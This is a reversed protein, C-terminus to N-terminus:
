EISINLDDIKPTDGAYYQVGNIYLNTTKGLTIFLNLNNYSTIVGGKSIYANNKNFVGAKITFYANKVDYLVFNNSFYKKVENNPHSPEDLFEIRWTESLESLDVHLNEINCYLNDYIGVLRKIDASYYSTGFKKLYNQYRQNLEFTDIYMDNINVVMSSKSDNKVTGYCKDINVTIHESNNNNIITTNSITRIEDITQNSDYYIYTSNIEKTPGYDFNFGDWLSQNLIVNSNDIPFLYGVVTITDYTKDILYKNKKLNEYNNYSCDVAPIYANYRKNLKDHMNMVEMISNEPYIVDIKYGYHFYDISTLDDIKYSSDVNFIEDDIICIYLKGAELTSVENLENDIFKYADVDHRGGDKDIFVIYPIPDDFENNRSYIGYMVGVELLKCIYEGPVVEWSIGYGCDISNPEAIEGIRTEIPQVNEWTNGGDYSVQYYQKYFKNYGSCIYDVSPDANYWRYQPEIAGCDTSNEEIIEGLKYEAPEVDSWHVGDYSYQKKLKQYKNYNAM